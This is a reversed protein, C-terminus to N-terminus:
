AVSCLGTALPSLTLGRLHMLPRKSHDTFAIRIITVPLERRGHTAGFEVRAASDTESVLTACVFRHGRDGQKPSARKSPFARLYMRLAERRKRDCRGM